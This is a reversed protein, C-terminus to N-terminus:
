SSACLLFGKFFQGFQKESLAIQSMERYISIQIIGGIKTQIEFFHLDFFGGSKSRKLNKITDPQKGGLCLRLWVIFVKNLKELFLFLWKNPNFLPLSSDSTLM